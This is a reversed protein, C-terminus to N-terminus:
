TLIQATVLHCAAILFLGGACYMLTDSVDICLIDRINGCHAHLTSVPMLDMRRLVSVISDQSGVIVRDDHCRLVSIAKTHMRDTKQLRGNQGILNVTGDM